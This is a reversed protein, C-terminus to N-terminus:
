APPRAKPDGSESKGIIIDGKADLNALDAGIGGPHHAHGGEVYIGGEGSTLDRARVGAPPPPAPKPGAQDEARVDLKIGFFELVFALKRRYRIIVALIVLAIVILAVVQLTDM